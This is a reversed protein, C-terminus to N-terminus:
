TLAPEVGSVAGSGASKSAPKLEVVPGVSVTLAFAAHVRWRRADEASHVAVFVEGPAGARVVLGAASRFHLVADFPAKAASVVPSTVRTVPDAVALLAVVNYKWVSYL